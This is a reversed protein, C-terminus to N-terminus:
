SGARSIDLKNSLSDLCRLVSVVTGLIQSARRKGINKIARRAIAAWGPTSACGAAGAHVLPLCLLRTVPAVCSRVATPMVALRFTSTGQITARRMFRMATQRAIPSVSRVFSLDTMRMCM